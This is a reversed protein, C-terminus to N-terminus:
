LRPIGGTVLAPVEEPLGPGEQLQGGAPVERVSAPDLYLNVTM